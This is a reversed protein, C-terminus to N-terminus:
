VRRGATGGTNSVNQSLMKRFPTKEAPTATM